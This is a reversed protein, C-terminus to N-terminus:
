KASKDHQSCTVIGGSFGSNSKAGPTVEVQCSLNPLLISTGIIQLLSDLTTALEVAVMTDGQFRLETLNRAYHHHRHIFAQQVGSVRGLEASVRRRELEILTM